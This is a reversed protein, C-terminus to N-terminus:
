FTSALNLSMERYGVMVLYDKFMRNAMISDRMPIDVILDFDMSAISMGLLSTFSVLAFSYALNPNILTITFLTHIQITRIVADFTAQADQQTM